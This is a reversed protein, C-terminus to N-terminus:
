ISRREIRAKFRGFRLKPKDSRNEKEKRLKHNFRLEQEWTMAVPTNEPKPIDYCFYQVADLIHFRSKFQISDAKTESWQCSVFEEIIDEGAWTTIKIRGANLMEQVTKILEMKLGANKAYVGEYNIRQKAAEKIFFVEHPDSRRRIINVGYSEEQFRKVLDSPATGAVYKAKILYWVKSKPCEAWLTYGSDSSGAPDVVEMHRWSPSYNEPDAVHLNPDFDYVSRDGFFWDGYLRANREGEPLSAFQAMIEEERGEYLPNSLMGFQYKKGVRPDINEIKNKIELNKILPTFTTLFRGKNAITRMELEAFLSISNPMEDLWVWHAVFAQANQRAENVNNHSIFIIINGSNRHKVSQLVGASKNEIYCQSDLHPKIKREWIEEQLQKTTRGLVLMTLPREGWHEAANFNPHTGEFIWACERAGLQSKGSQNGAIVYRCLQSNIDDLITQQMGTPRSDPRYADFAQRRQLLERRRLAAAILRKETHNDSV